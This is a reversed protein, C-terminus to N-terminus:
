LDPSLDHIFFVIKMMLIVMSKQIV